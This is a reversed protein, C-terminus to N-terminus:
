SQLTFPCTTDASLVTLLISSGHRLHTQKFPRKDHEFLAHGTRLQEGDNIIGGLGPSHQGVQLPLDSM